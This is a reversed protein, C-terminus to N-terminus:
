SHHYQDIFDQIIKEAKQSSLGVRLTHFMEETSPLFSMERRLTTISQAEAPKPLPQLQLPPTYPELNIQSRNNPDFTDGLIIKEIFIRQSTAEVVSEKIVTDTPTSSTTTVNTTAQIDSHSHSFLRKIFYFM